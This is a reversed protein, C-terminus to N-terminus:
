DFKRKSGTGRRDYKVIVHEQAEFPQSISTWKNHHGAYTAYLAMSEM